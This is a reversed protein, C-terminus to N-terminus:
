RIRHSPETENNWMRFMRCRGDETFTVTWLNDFTGLETYRGTGKIAATDGTIMLLSWDFSWGGEQWPQRSLWGDVVADRGILSTEYPWEHYEADPSFLAAIDDPDATRWAHVYREVWEAVRRESLRTTASM